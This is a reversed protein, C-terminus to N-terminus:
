VIIVLTQSYFSLMPTSLPHLLIFGLTSANQPFHERESVDCRSLAPNELLSGCRSSLMAFYVFVFNLECLCELLILRLSPLRMLFLICFRCVFLWVIYIHAFIFFRHACKASPLYGRWFFDLFAVSEGM